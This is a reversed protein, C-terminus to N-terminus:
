REEFFRQLEKLARGRHSIANKVESGLEAFSWEYGEPIFVPDYGFGGTGKTEHAIRGKVIGNFVYEEGNWILALATRFQASRDAVGDLAELLKAINNSANAEPGAYRASYVGPAGDLANVELGTDDSFCNRGTAQWIARVKLLANGELTPETEPIEDQFGIDDLSLVHGFKVLIEQAERLKGANHTAFVLEM